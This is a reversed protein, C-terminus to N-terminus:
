KKKYINLGVKIEEHGDISINGEPFSFYLFPSTEIKKLISLSFGPVDYQGESRM